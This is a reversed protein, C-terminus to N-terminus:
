EYKKVADTLKSLHVPGELAVAALYLPIRWLDRRRYFDSDIPLISRYSDFVIAPVPQWSDILALDMERNGYYIAPDIVYTGEATSVFNNQQADGHLLTPTVKSECLEPLRGAMKEIRSVISVPLNGSECATKLLPLLRRQRFFITWNSEFTNDQNLPGWFGNRDFGFSHNKVLHIRALTTGIQQWQEPGRDIVELAKLILITGTEAQLIGLPQPILVGSKESLTQLGALEIEFQRSANDAQSFKIFIAFSGDSLIATRHYAFESYDKESHIKWRYGTYRSVATEIAELIDNSLWKIQGLRVRPGTNNNKGDMSYFIRNCSRNTVFGCAFRWTPPNVIPLGGAAPLPIM